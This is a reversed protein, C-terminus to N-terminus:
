KIVEIDNELLIEQVGSGNNDLLILNIIHPPIDSNECQNLSNTLEKKSKELLVKHINEENRWHLVKRIVRVQDETIKYM